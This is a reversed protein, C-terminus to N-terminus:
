MEGSKSDIDLVWPFAFGEWFGATDKLYMDCADAGPLYKSFCIRKKKKALGM